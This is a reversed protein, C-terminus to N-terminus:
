RVILVPRKSWRVIRTTHSGVVAKQGSTIGRTGIVILDAEEREAQDCVLEAPDGMLVYKTVKIGENKAKKEAEDVYQNARLRMKERIERISEKAYPELRELQAQEVVSMVILEAGFVSALRIAYDLAKQAHKSGDTAVLIKRFM